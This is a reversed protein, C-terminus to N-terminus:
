RRKIKHWYSGRLGHWIFLLKLSLKVKFSRYENQYCGRKSFDVYYHLNKLYDVADALWRGRHLCGAHNYNFINHEKDNIGRIDLGAEIARKNGYWESTWPNEHPMAMEKLMNIKWFSVQYSFVHDSPQLKSINPEDKCVIMPLKQCILYLADIDNDSFYRFIINLKSSDVTGMLMYDIMFLLIKDTPVKDLGARLAAGFSKERGVKTCVIHFDKRSYEKEQTQLYITGDFDPWNRHFMDFFLDWIDSYADSSCVFVVYDSKM